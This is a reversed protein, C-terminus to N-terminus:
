GVRGEVAKDFNSQELRYRGSGLATITFKEGELAEPVDFSSVKLSVDGWAYGTGKLIAPEAMKKAHRALWDGILPLRRPRADIDLGMEEVTKGIVMRSQLIEMEGTAETKVDFMSSVDGLPSKAANAAMTDEVQILINAQYV